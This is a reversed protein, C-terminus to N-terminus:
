GRIVIQGSGPLREVCRKGFLRSPTFYGGPGAYDLLHAVAM